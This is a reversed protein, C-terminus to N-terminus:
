RGNVAESGQGKVQSIRCIRGQVKPVRMRSEGSSCGNKTAARQAPVQSHQEKPSFKRKRRGLVEVYHYEIVALSVNANVFRLTLYLLKHFNLMYYCSNGWGRLHHSSNCKYTNNEKGRNKGERYKDSFSYCNSCSRKNSFPFQSISTDVCFVLKLRIPPFATFM